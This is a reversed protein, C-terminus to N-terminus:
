MVGKEEVDYGDHRLYLVVRYPESSEAKTELCEVVWGTEVAARIARQLQREARRREASTM